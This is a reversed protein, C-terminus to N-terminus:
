RPKILKPAPGTLDVRYESHLRHIAQPTLLDEPVEIDHEHGGDVEIRVGSPADKGGSAPRFTALIKGSRDAFVKLKM